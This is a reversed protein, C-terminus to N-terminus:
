LLITSYMCTTIMTILYSSIVIKSGHRGQVKMFM